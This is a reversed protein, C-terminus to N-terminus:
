VQSAPPPPSTDARALQERFRGLTRATPTAAYANCPGTGGGTMNILDSPCGIAVMLPYARVRDGVGRIQCHQRTGFMWCLAPESQTCGASALRARLAALLFLLSSSSAKAM